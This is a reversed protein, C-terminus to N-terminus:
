HWVNAHASDRYSHFGHWQADLPGACRALADVITRLTTHELEGDVGAAWCMVHDCVVWCLVDHGRDYFLNRLNVTFHGRKYLIINYFLRLAKVQLFRLKPMTKNCFHCDHVHFPMTLAAVARRQTMCTHM